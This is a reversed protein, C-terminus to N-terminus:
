PVPDPHPATCRGRGSALRAPGLAQPRPGIGIGSGAAPALAAAPRQLDAVIDISPDRLWRVQLGEAAAVIVRAQWAEGQPVPRATVPPLAMSSGNTARAMRSRGASTILRFTPAVRTPSAAMGSRVNRGATCPKRSVM